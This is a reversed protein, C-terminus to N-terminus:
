AGGPNKEFFRQLLERVAEINQPYPPEGEVRRGARVAHRVQKLTRITDEVVSSILHMERPSLTAWGLPPMPPRIPFGAQARPVALPAPAKEGLLQARLERSIEEVTAVRVEFSRSHKELWEKTAEAITDRRASTRTMFLLIPEFKDSFQEEYVTQYRGRPNWLVEWYRGLKTLTASKHQANRVSASGTEYEILYRRKRAPDELMADPQLRRDYRHHEEPVYEEFPLELEESPLWRFV